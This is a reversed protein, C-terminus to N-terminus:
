KGVLSLDFNITVDDGMVMSSGGIGYTIRNITFSGKVTAKGATETFTFPITIEKTTNKVTLKFVGSYISASKKTFSVSKLTIKPFKDAGFYEDKRLHNDRMTSNTNISKTDITAEVSANAVDATNFNVSAAIGAFKGEVSIGANKIKFKLASSAVSWTKPQAQAAAQGFVTNFLSSFALVITLLTIKQM